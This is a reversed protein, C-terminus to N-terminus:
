PQTVTFTRSMANNSTNQEPQFSNVTCNITKSGPTMPGPISITRSVTENEELKPKNFSTGPECRTNFGDFTAGGINKVTVTFQFNTAPPGSPPSVSVQTITLDYPPTPPMAVVTWACQSTNNGEGTEAIRNDPDATFVVRHAGPPLNKLNYLVPSNSGSVTAGAPLYVGGATATQIQASGSPAPAANGQQHTAGWVRWGGEISAADNGTNKMAARVKYTFQNSHGYQQCVQKSYGGGRNCLVECAGLTLDPGVNQAPAPAIRKITAPAKKIPAVKRRMEAQADATGCVLYLLGLCALAAIVYGPFGPNRVRM